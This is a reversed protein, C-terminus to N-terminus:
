GPPDGGAQQQRAACCAHDVATEAAQHTTRYCPAPEPRCGHAAPHSPHPTARACREADAPHGGRVPRHSQPVVVWPLFEPHARVDDDKAAEEALVIEATDLSADPDILWLYGLLLAHCRVPACLRPQYDPLDLVFRGPRTWTAIGTGLIAEDDM